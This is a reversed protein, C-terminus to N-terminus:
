GVKKGPVVVPKEWFAAAWAFTMPAMLAIINWNNQDFWPLPKVIVALVTTVATFLWVLRLGKAGRARGLAYMVGLPLAAFTVPSALMLNENHHTVMHDTFLGMIFLALGLVGYTLGVLVNLVGLTVRAAGRGALAERRLWFGLAGMLSGFIFLPVIWQPPDAPTPARAKSATAYSWERAVAPVLTGDPGKVKLLNLQRELEDPLFAEAQQTIPQDLQDNQMYDLLLLMPPLVSSYRRTHQRLSMRAPVSTASKLQGDFALDIMDRPRTSCNDNYHHYLYDRHAPEVNTALARAVQMRQDPTLNLEQIRVDRDLEKYMEYTGVVPAEGVWFELRGQAFKHLFGSSFDFMGYNYLRGHNLRRDEVVLATHGWWSPIDDGPGFTALSIVLDEGRSPGGVAWPASSISLCLSLLAATLM